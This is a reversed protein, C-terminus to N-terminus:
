VNGAEHPYVKKVSLVANKNLKEMSKKVNNFSFHLSTM